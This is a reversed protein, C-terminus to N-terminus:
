QTLAGALKELCQEMGMKSMEAMQGPAWGKETVTLRTRGDGLDKFTVIHIQNEPFDSPMGVSAPSITNGDKDALNHVYEIRELPVVRLYRWTSYQEPFGLKPSAMSVLSVGGERVDMVATPCEFNDPGWWQRLADSETWARWVKAVPADFTHTFVLDQTPANTM